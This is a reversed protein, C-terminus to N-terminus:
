VLAVAEEKMSQDSMAKLAEIQDHIRRKLALPNTAEYLAQLRTQTERSLPPKAALLRRWPTCARDQRRAIRLTGNPRPVARREVQRLVPQFFNYYLWMDDYLRQLAQCQAPTHLPMDGLYARVLSSNKQEVCRNDNHYGPRGRTQHADLQDPGFCAILAHNIFESGNDSHIERIPLPCHRRFTQLIDWITDFEHGMIAFRESWGTLVDIFQITCVLRGHEDPIGHHVLDVEFHGPETIDWPIIAIPVARQASTDMRRGPYARPLRETPRIPALIRGVTAISVEDLKALVEPAASLEDCRILIDATERLAPQLREPCVWDLTDAIVAIVQTVDDDYVRSRERHRPHRYLDPNSMQGILYKRQLSTVIEMENLLETKLKRDAATYRGRMIRLYKLREDLNMEDTPM